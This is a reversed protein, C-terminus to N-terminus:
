QWPLRDLDLNGGSLVIGVRRGQFMSLNAMVAALPVVGSPEVVIKMREWILRMAAVIQEESTTVVRRVHQRLITFTRESLGARLGDAITNSPGAPQLVGEALSRAADDAQQPEAGIVETGPCAGSAAIAIGSLLGGGSIPAILMDLNPQQESFELAVTGQGAIVRSDDYPHIMVAGTKEITEAATSERAALTPECLIVHAGYSEVATRKAAPANRPMVIHAPIGRYRAALALAAAHNGSSHTVVGRCAESESLCSVANHAGRFKFAGAKQLNECKFFLRAQFMRDLSESTMVPTRHALPAIRRAAAQVDAFTPITVM